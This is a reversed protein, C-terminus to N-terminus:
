LSAILSELKMGRSGKLLISKATPQEKEFYRKVDETKDFYKVWDAKVSRPWNGALVVLEFSGEAIRKEIKEHEAAHNAGLEFMEGLVLCKGDIALASFNDIAAAMSSPNANYADVYLNNKGTQILQSRNNSPIYDELAEKMADTDLKFFRGICLAAAINTVNYGGFLNTQIEVPCSIKVFPNQEVVNVFMDADMTNCGYTSSVKKASSILLEDDVNVFLGKGFDNIWEYLALKTKVINDFGGFGELHAYGINTILGYDPECIACLEAIEGVHNAGMEVVAFEVDTTVSLVTLPVGIHNNLNGQTYAVKFQSSLVAAILEKTTTKGNTGTIGIVTTDLQKRHHNALDQLTKLVDDVLICSDGCVFEEQDIVACVCGANLADSAYRNGNFSEGKLAFFVSGKEVRRTDTCVGTSQQFIEYLAEIDM